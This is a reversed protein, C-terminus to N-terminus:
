STAVSILGVSHLSDTPLILPLALLYWLSGGTPKPVKPCLHFYPTWPFTIVGKSGQHNWLGSTTWPFALYGPWFTRCFEQGPHLSSATM